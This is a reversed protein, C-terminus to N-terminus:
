LPIIWLKKGHKAAAFQCGHQSQWVKVVRLVCHCYVANNYYAVAKTHWGRCGKWKFNLHRSIVGSLRAWKALKCLIIIWLGCCHSHWITKEVYGEKKGGLTGFDLLKTPWHFSSLWQTIENLCVIIIPCTPRLPILQSFMIVKVTFVKELCWHHLELSSVRTSYWPTTSFDM